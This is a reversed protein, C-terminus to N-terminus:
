DGARSTFSQGVCARRIEEQKIIGRVRKFLRPARVGTTSPIMGRLAFLCNVALMLRKSYTINLRVFRKKFSFKEIFFEQVNTSHYLSRSGDSVYSVCERNLYHDLMFDTLVYSSYRGLYDPDYWITEWFVAGDQTINESFGVLSDGCFVGCYERVDQYAEAALVSIKFRHEEPLFEDDRFRGVARKCVEYGHDLVESVTLVRAYLKKKGRNIKSRTNSSCDKVDYKGECVVHWWEGSSLLGYGDTWRAFAKGSASRANRASEGSIRPMAHPLYAPMVFSNYEFWYVGDVRHVNVGAANLYLAYRNGKVVIM